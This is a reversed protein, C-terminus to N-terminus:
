WSHENMQKDCVCRNVRNARVCRPGWLARDDISDPVTGSGRRAPHNKNLSYRTEVNAFGALYSNFWIFIIGQLFWEARTSVSHSIRQKKWGFFHYERTTNATQLHSVSRFSTCVPDTKKERRITVTIKVTVLLLNPKLPFISTLQAYTKATHYMSRTLNQQM